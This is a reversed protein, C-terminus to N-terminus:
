LFMIIACDDKLLNAYMLMKICPPKLTFISNAIIYLEVTALLWFELSTCYIDVFFRM